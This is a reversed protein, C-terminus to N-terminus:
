WADPEKLTHTGFYGDEMLTMTLGLRFPANSNAPTGAPYQRTPTKTLNM